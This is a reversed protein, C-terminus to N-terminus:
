ILESANSMYKGLFEHFNKAIPDKGYDVYIREDGNYICYRHSSILYDAFCVYEQNCNYEQVIWDINWFTLYDKDFNDNEFGNVELLYNKFDAPLDFGILKILEKIQDITAPAHNKIGQNEWYKLLQNNMRKIHRIVRLPM